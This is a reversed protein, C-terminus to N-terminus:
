VPLPMCKCVDHYNKTKKINLVEQLTHSRRCGQLIYPTARLTIFSGLLPCVFSGLSSLHSIFLFLWHPWLFVLFIFFTFFYIFLSFPAVSTNREFSGCEHENLIQVGHLNDNM